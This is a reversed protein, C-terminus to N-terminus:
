RFRTRCPNFCGTGLEQLNRHASETPDNEDDNQEGDETTIAKAAALPVTKAPQRGALLFLRGRYFPTVAM